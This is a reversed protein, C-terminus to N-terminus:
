KRNKKLFVSFAPYLKWVGWHLHSEGVIPDGERGGILQCVPPFKGLFSLSKWTWIQM